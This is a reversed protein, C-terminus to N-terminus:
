NYSFAGLGGGGGRFRLFLNLFDGAEFVQDLIKLIAWQKKLEKFTVFNLLNKVIKKNLIRKRDENRITTGDEATFM